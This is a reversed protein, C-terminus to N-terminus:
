RLSSKIDGFLSYNYNLSADLGAFCHFDVNSNNFSVHSTVLKECVDIDKCLVVFLATVSKQPCIYFWIQWLNTYVM